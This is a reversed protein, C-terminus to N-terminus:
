GKVHCRLNSNPGKFPAHAATQMDFTTTIEEAGLIRCHMGHTRLGWPRLYLSPVRCSGLSTTFLLVRAKCTEPSIWAGRACHM